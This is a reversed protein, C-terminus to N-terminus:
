PEQCANLTEEDFLSMQVYPPHPAEKMSGKRGRRRRTPKGPTANSATQVEDDGTAVVVRCKPAKDPAKVSDEDYFHVALSYVEQHTMYPRNLRKVENCIFACCQAITKGSSNYKEAFRSDQGAVSDLHDKISKEFPNLRPESM